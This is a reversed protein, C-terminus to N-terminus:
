KPASIPHDHKIEKVTKIKHVGGLEIALLTKLREPTQHRWNDPFDMRKTRERQEKDLYGVELIM